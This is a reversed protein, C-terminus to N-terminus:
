EVTFTVLLHITQHEVTQTYLLEMNAGVFSEFMSDSRSSSELHYWKDLNHHTLTYKVSRMNSRIIWAQRDRLLWIQEATNEFQNRKSQCCAVHNM